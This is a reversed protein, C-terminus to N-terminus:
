RTSSIQRLLAMSNVGSIVVRNPDPSKPSRPNRQRHRCEHLDRLRKTDDGKKNYECDIDWRPFENELYSALKHTISREHVGLKLLLRDRKLLVTVAKCIKGEVVKRSFRPM